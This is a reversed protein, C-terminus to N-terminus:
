PMAYASIKLKLGFLTVLWATTTTGLNAGFIVGIGQTLTMLNVSLFSIVIVSILSSSQVISTTLFGTFVSKPLTNTFKELINELAGGSFLKFGDEMFSMGIMFIAVGSFIIKINEDAIIFYGLVLLILPISLKKFM